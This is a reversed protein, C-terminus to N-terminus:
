GLVMEGSSGPAVGVWDRSEWAGNVLVEVVVEVYGTLTGRGGQTGMGQTGMGPTAM